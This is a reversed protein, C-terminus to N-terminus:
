LGTGKFAGEAGPYQDPKSANETDSLEPYKFINTAGSTYIQLDEAQSGIAESVENLVFEVM